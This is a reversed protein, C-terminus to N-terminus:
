PNWRYGTPVPQKNCVPNLGHRLDTEIRLREAYNNVRFQGIHTVGYVIARKYGEHKSLGTNLRENLNETEGVYLHLYTKPALLGTGPAPRCLIYVGGVPLYEQGIPDVFFHYTQGSVGTWKVRETMTSGKQPSAADQFSGSSRM